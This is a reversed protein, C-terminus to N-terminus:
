CWPSIMVLIKRTKRSISISIELNRNSFKFFFINQKKQGSTATVPALHRGRITCTFTPPSPQVFPSCNEGRQKLVLCTDSSLHFYASIQFCSLYRTVPVTTLIQIVKSGRQMKGLQETFRVGDSEVKRHWEGSAKRVAQLTAASIEPSPPCALKFRPAPARVCWRSFLRLLPHHPLLPLVRSDTRLNRGSLTEWAAAAEAQCELM